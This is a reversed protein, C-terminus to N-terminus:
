LYIDQSGILYEPYIQVGIGHEKDWICNFLMIATGDQKILLSTPTVIGSLESASGIRRAGFWVASLEECNDNIYGIIMESIKKSVSEFNAKYWQYSSRHEDTIAKGSYAKAAITINWERGFLNIEANKYWRHKYKMEGFVADNISVEM